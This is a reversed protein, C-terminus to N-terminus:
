QLDKPAYSALKGSVVICVPLSRLMKREVMAADPRSRV